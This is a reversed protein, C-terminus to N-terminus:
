NVQLNQIAKSAVNGIQGQKQQKDEFSMQGDLVIDPYKSKTKPKIYENTYTGDQRYRKVIKTKNFTFKIAVVKRGEKIEEFDLDIHYHRNIEKVAHAFTKRKLDNYRELKNGTAFIERLQLISKTLYGTEKFEQLLEYLRTTYLSSFGAVEKLDYMVFKKRVQSLYPMIDDTFRITICGEKENYKASSCINIKWITNDEIRNITINTNMLKDCAKRLFDYAHKMNCNFISNYDKAHLVYERKLKNSPINNGESDIKVIMSVIHLYVKYDNHTFDGFNANNLKKNKYPKLEKTKKM